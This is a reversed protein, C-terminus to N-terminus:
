TQVIIISNSVTLTGGPETHTDDPSNSFLESDFINTKAGSVTYVGASILAIAIWDIAAPWEGLIPIGMLATMVPTLAFVFLALRNRLSLRLRGIRRGSRYTRSNPDWGGREGAESAGRGGAQPLTDM